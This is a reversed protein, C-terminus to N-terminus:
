SGNREVAMGLGCHGGAAERLDARANKDPM